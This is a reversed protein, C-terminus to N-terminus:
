ADKLVAKIKEADAALAGQDAMQGTHPKLSVGEFRIDGEIREVPVTDASDAIKPQQGMLERVLELGDTCYLCRTEASWKGDVATRYGISKGAGTEATIIVVRNHYLQELIEDRFEAIPLSM